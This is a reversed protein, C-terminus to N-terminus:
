KEEVGQASESDERAADADSTAAAASGRAIVVGSEVAAEVIAKIRGHFKSGGRDVVVNKIGKVLATEGARKGLLRAAAVNKGDEVGLTSVAALTVGMEDDIFQVYIHKNSAMIAMRPRAATGRVKRRIRLHRRHRYDTRSRLRM